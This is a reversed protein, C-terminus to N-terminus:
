SFLKQRYVNEIGLILPNRSSKNLSAILPAGFFLTKQIKLSVELHKIIWEYVQEASCNWVELYELYVPYEEIGIIEKLKANFAKFDRKMQERGSLNCRKVKGFAEFISDQCFRGAKALIKEQVDWPISGGGIFSIKEKFDGLLQM